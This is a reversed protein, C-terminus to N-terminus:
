GICKRPTPRRGMPVVAASGTRGCRRGPTRGDRCRVARASADTGGRVRGPRGHAPLLAVQDPPPPVLARGRVVLPRPYLGWAAVQAVAAARWSSVYLFAPPQLWRVGNNRAPLDYELLYYLHGIAIGTLSPELSGGILSTFGAMVYPLYKAQAM